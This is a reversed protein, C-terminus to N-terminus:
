ASKMLMRDSGDVAFLFSRSREFATVDYRRSQDQV